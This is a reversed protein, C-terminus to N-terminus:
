AGAVGGHRVIWLSRVLRRRSWVVVTPWRLSRRLGYLLVVIAIVVVVAVILAPVLILTLIIVSILVLLVAVRSVLLILPLGLILVRLVVACRVSLVILLIGVIVVSSNSFGRRLALHMTHRVRTQLLWSPRLCRVSSVPRWRRLATTDPPVAEIPLVAIRRIPVRRLRGPCWLGLVTRTGAPILTLAEESAENLSM